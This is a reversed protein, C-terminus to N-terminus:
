LIRTSRERWQNNVMIGPTPTVLYGSIGDPALGYSVFPYQEPYDNYEYATTTGDPQVLALYEGSTSLEFNTHLAGYYDVYPENEPFLTLEM